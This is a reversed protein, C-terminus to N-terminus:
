PRLRSRTIPPTRPSTRTAAKGRPSTRGEPSKRPRVTRQLSRGGKGKAKPKTSKKRRKYPPSSPNKAPTLPRAKEGCRRRKGQRPGGAQDAVKATSAKGRSSSTQSGSPVLPASDAVSPAPTLAGLLFRSGSSMSSRSFLARRSSSLSSGPESPGASELCSGTGSACLDAVSSSAWGRASAWSESGFEFAQREKNNDPSLSRFLQRVHSYYKPNPTTPAGKPPSKLIRNTLPDYYKLPTRKYKYKSASDLDCTKKKRGGGPRRKGPQKSLSPLSDAPSSLVYVVTKPQLPSMVKSYSAPLSLACLRTKMQPTENTSNATQGQSAEADDLPASVGEVTKRRVVPFSVGTTQTGHSVKVVQCRSALRYYRKRPQATQEKQPLAPQQQQSQQQQEQEQDIAVDEETHEMLPVVDTCEVASTAKDEPQSKRTQKRTKRRRHKGYRALSETDFYCRFHGERFEKVLSDIKLDDEQMVQAWTKGVFSPPIHPLDPLVEDVSVNVKSVARVETEVIEEEMDQAPKLASDLQSKYKQDELSIHTEMLGTLNKEDVKPADLTAQLTDDWGKSGASNSMSHLSLRFSGGDDDDADNDPQKQERVRGYCHLDIVENIVQNIEDSIDSFTRERHASKWPPMAPAWLVPSEFGLKSLAQAKSTPDRYPEAGVPSGSASDNEDGRRNTKKNAKRHQSQSNSPQEPTPDKLRSTDARLHMQVSDLQAPAKTTQKSQSLTQLSSSSTRHLFGQTPSDKRSLPPNLHPKLIDTCGYTSTSPADMARMSPKTAVVVDKRPILSAVQTPAPPCSEDDSSPMEERTGVSAKDEKSGCYVESLEERPPPLTTLLPLDAHTPRYSLVCCM